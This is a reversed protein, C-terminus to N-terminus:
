CFHNRGFIGVLHSSVRAASLCEGSLSYRLKSLIALSHACIYRDGRPLGFLSGLIEHQMNEIRAGVSVQGVTTRQQGCYDVQYGCREHASPILPQTPQAVQHWICLFLCHMWAKCMM